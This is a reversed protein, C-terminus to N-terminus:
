IAPGHFSLIEYSGSSQMGFCQNIGKMLAIPMITISQKILGKTTAERISNVEDSMVKLTSYFIFQFLMGDVHRTHAHTDQFFYCTTGEQTAHLIM